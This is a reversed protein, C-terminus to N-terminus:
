ASHLFDLPLSATKGQQLTGHEKYIYGAQYEIIICGDSQTSPHITKLLLDYGDQNETM